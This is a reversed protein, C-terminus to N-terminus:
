THSVRCMSLTTTSRMSTTAAVHITSNGKIQTVTVTVLQRERRERAQQPVWSMVGTFRAALFARSGRLTSWDSTSGVANDGSSTM